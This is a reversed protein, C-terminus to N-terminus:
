ERSVKGLCTDVPHSGQSDVRRHELQRISRIAENVARILCERHQRRRTWRIRMTSIATSRWKLPSASTPSSKPRCIKAELFKWPSGRRRTKARPLVRRSPSDPPQVGLPAIVDTDVRRLHSRAARVVELPSPRREKKWTRVAIINPQLQAGRGALSAEPTLLAARENLNM